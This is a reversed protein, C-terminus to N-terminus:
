RWGHGRSEEHHVLLAHDPGQIRRPLPQEPEGVAVPHPLWRSTSVPEDDSASTMSSHRTVFRGITRRATFISRGPVPAECRPIGYGGNPVAGPERVTRDTQEGIQAFHDIQFILETQFVAQGTQAFEGCADGM